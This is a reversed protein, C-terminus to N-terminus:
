SFTTSPSRISITRCSDFERMKSLEYDSRYTLYGGSPAPIPASASSLRHPEFLPRDGDFHDVPRRSLTTELYKLNALVQHFTDFIDGQPWVRTMTIAVRTLTSPFFEFWAHQSVACYSARNGFLPTEVSEFWVHSERVAEMVRPFIWESEKQVGYWSYEGEALPPYGYKVGGRGTFCTEFSVKDPESVEWSPWTGDLCKPHIPYFRLKEIWSM